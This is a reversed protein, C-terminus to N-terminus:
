GAPEVEHLVTVVADRLQAAREAGLQQPRQLLALMGWHHAGVLTFAAQAEAIGLHEAAALGPRGAELLEAFWEAVHVRACEEPSADGLRASTRFYREGRDLEQRATFGFERLLLRVESPAGAREDRAAAGGSGGLINLTNM